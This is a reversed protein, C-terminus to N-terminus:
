ETQDLGNGHLRQGVRHDRLGNGHLHRGVRHDRLGNGHLRQGVRNDRQGNSHLLQGVRHDRPGIGHLPRGLREAHKANAHLVTCLSGRPRVRSRDLCPPSWNLCINKKEGCCTTRCSGAKQTTGGRKQLIRCLHPRTQGRGLGLKPHGNLTKNITCARRAPRPRGTPNNGLDWWPNDARNITNVGAWATVPPPLLPEGYCCPSPHQWCHWCCAYPRQLHQPRTAARRSCQAAAAPRRWQHLSRASGAWTAKRPTPRAALTLAPPDQTARSAAPNGAM